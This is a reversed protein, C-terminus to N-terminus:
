RIVSTVTFQGDIQEATFRIPQGEQMQELLAPNSVRFVMTMAPVNLNAIPGHRITVKAQARDIRRVEGEAVNAQAWALASLATTASLALAGLRHILSRM